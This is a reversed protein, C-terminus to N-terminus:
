ARNKGVNDANDGGQHNCHHDKTSLAEFFVMNHRIDATYGIEQLKKEFARAMPFDRFVIEIRIALYDEKAVKCFTIGTNDAWFNPLAIVNRSNKQVAYAIQPRFSLLDGPVIKIQTYLFRWFLAMRMVIKWCSGEYCFDIVCYRINDRNKARVFMALIMLCTIITISIIAFTLTM